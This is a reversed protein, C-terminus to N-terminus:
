DLYGHLFHNPRHTADRIPHNLLVVMIRISLALDYQYAPLHTRPVRQRTPNPQTRFARAM